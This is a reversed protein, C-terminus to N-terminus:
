IYIGCAIYANEGPVRALYTSKLSSATQGPKPWWYNVWGAGQKVATDILDNFFKKGRIDELQALDPGVLKEPQFPHALLTVKGKTSGIYIYWEDGSCFPGNKDAAAEIVAQLGKKQAMALSKKVLDVAQKKRNTGSLVGQLTASITRLKAAEAEMKESGQASENARTANKQTITDIQLISKSVDQLNLRQEASAHAIERILTVSKEFSELMDSFDGETRKMLAVGSGTKSIASQILEQTGRAAAASRKALNRVEEAVVAFGAGHEGARAAEVAANLALLNTQFAIGDIDKIINSIKESAAAIEEMALSTENMSAGARNVVSQAEEILMRGKDANEANQVTAGTIQEISAATKQLNDAQTGAGESLARANTYYKISTSEAEEVAKSLSEMSSRLPVVTSRFLYVTWLILVGCALLTALVHDTMAHSSVRSGLSAFISSSISLLLFILIKTRLNM